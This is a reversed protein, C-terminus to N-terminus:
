GNTRLQWSRKEKTWLVFTSQKKKRKTMGNEGGLHRDTWRLAYDKGAACPEGMM